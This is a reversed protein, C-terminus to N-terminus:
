QEKHKGYKFIQEKIGERRMISLLILFDTRHDNQFKISMRVVEFRDYFGKKTEDYYVLGWGYFTEHTNIVRVSEGKKLLAEVQKVLENDVNHSFIKEM